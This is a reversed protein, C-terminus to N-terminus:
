KKSAGFYRREVESYKSYLVKKKSPREEVTKDGQHFKEGVLMSSFDKASAAGKTMRRAGSM